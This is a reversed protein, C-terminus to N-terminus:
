GAQAKPWRAASLVFSKLMQRKLLTLSFLILKLPISRLHTCLVM